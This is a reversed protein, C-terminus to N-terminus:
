KTKFRMIEDYRAREHAQLIELKAARKKAARAKTLEACRRSAPSYYTKDTQQETKM